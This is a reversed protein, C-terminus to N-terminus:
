HPHLNPSFLEGPVKSVGAGIALKTGHVHIFHVIGRPIIQTEVAIAVRIGFVVDNSGREGDRNILRHAIFNRPTAPRM